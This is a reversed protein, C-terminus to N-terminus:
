RNIYKAVMSIVIGIVACSLQLFYYIVDIMFPIKFNQEGLILNMGIARGGLGGFASLLSSFSGVVFAFFWKGFDIRYDLVREILIYLSFSEFIQSFFSLLFVLIIFRYYGRKWVMLVLVMLLIFFVMWMFFSKLYFMLSLVLAALIGVLRDLYPSIFMLIRNKIKRDSLTLVGGKIGDTIVLSLGFQNLLLSISSLNLLLFFNRNSIFLLDIVFMWRFVKLIFALFSFLFMFLFVIWNSFVVHYIDSIKLMAKNYLFGILIFSLVLYILFLFIKITRTKGLKEM